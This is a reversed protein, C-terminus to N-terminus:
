KSPDSTLVKTTPKASCFVLIPRLLLRHFPPSKSVIINQNRIPDKIAQHTSIMRRRRRRRHRIGHMGLSVSFFTIPILIYSYLSGVTGTNSHDSKIGERRSDVSNSAGTV